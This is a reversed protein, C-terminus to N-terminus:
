EEAAREPWSIQGEYRRKTINHDQDTLSWEKLGAMIFPAIFLLQPLVDSREKLELWPMWFAPQDPEPDLTQQPDVIM